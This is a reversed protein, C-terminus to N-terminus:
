KGFISYEVARLFSRTKVQGDITLYAIFNGGIKISKIKSEDINVTNKSSYSNSSTDCSISLVVRFSLLNKQSSIIIIAGYKVNSLEYLMTKHHIICYATHHTTNLAM